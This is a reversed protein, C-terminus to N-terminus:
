APLTGHKISNREAERMCAWLVMLTVLFCMIGDNHGFIVQTM